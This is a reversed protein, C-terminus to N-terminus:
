LSRLFNLISQKDSNSLRRFAEVSRNAESPGLAPMRTVPNAPAAPSFHAEIAELLNRTRGDHLFFIRQGVGWLPTTRFMDPGAAGQIINDALNAGM